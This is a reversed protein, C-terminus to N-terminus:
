APDNGQPVQRQIFPDNGIFLPKGEFARILWRADSNRRFDLQCDMITAPNITGHIPPHGEGAYSVGIFRATARNEDQVNFRANLFTHVTVRIGQKHLAAVRAQRDVYYKRIAERGQCGAFEGDETYFDAVKSGDTFDMEYAFAAMVQQLEFAVTVPEQAQTSM